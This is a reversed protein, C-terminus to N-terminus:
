IDLSKNLLVRKNIKESVETNINEVEKDKNENLLMQVVYNITDFSLEINKDCEGILKRKEEIIKEIENNKKNALEMDLSYRSNIYSESIAPCLPFFCFSSLMTVLDLIFYPRYITDLANVGFYNLSIRQGVAAIVTTFVFIMGTKFLLKNTLKNKLEYFESFDNEQLKLDNIEEKLLRIKEQNCKMNLREDLIRNKVNDLIKEDM